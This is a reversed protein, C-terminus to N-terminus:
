YSIKQCSTTHMRRKNISYLIVCKKDRPVYIASSFSVLDRVGPAACQHDGCQECNWDGPMMTQGGRGGGGGGSRMHQEPYRVSTHLAPKKPFRQKADATRDVSKLDGRSLAATETIESIRAFHLLSGSGQRRLRGSQATARLM